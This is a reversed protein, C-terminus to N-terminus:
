QLSTQLNNTPVPKSFFSLWVGWLIYGALPWEILTEPQSPQLSLIFTIGFFFLNGFWFLLVPWAWIKKQSGAWLILPILYIIQEYSKGRPHFLFTMLAVWALTQLPSLKNQLSQKLVWFTSGLAATGLIITVAVAAKMPLFQLLFFTLILWTQNYVAYRTLRLYWLHLWGPVAIFSLALFVALSIAFGAVVWFRRNHVALLLFFIIFLWSFQPKCTMWAIMIGLFVQFVKGTNAQRTLSSFCIILIATIPIAFNGLILGFSIPYFFLTSLLLWPKARPLSYFIASILLLICLSMWSAQAWEFPLFLLPLAPALAYPPYAFALQDEDPQALRKYISKQAQQAVQDSYPNEGHLIAEGALHFIYFDSGLTNKQTIQHIGVSLLGFCILFLLAAAATRYAAQAPPLFPSRLRM